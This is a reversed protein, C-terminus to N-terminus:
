QQRQMEQALRMHKSKLTKSEQMKAVFLAGKAISTAYAEVMTGLEELFEESIRQGGNDRVLRALPAKSIYKM